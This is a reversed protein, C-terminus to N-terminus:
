LFEEHNKIEREIERLYVLDDPSPLYIGLDASAHNKFRNIATTMEGTDLDATSRWITTLEGTIKNAFESKFINPNIEKKFIEQKVHSEPCGVSLGYWCFILHMYSNQSITRTAKKEKLELVKGKNILYEFKSKAKEKELPNSTDYIPM